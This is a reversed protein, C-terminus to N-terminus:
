DLQVRDNEIANISHNPDLKHLLWDLARGAWSLTGSLKNKGLVSSITEDPHGFKAGSNTILIDNFLERCVVNRLQDISVAWAYIWESVRQTGNNFKQRFYSAMVGWIIAPILLVGFLTIAVIVLVISLILKKM